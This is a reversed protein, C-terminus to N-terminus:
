KQRLTQRSLEINRIVAGPKGPAGLHKENLTLDVAGANGMTIRFREKARWTIKRNPRFLYQQPQLNDIVIEVWASDTVSARLTLSDATTTSQIHKAPFKRAASDTEADQVVSEFPTEKTAPPIKTRTLNWVIIGLILILIGPLAFKTIVPDLSALSPLLPREPRRKDEPSPTPEVVPPKQEAATAAPAANARDYRSMIDVPDLGVFSAYERIFARVYTQPLITINGQEIAELFSANILTADSVDNISLHRAERAQKLEQFVSDM